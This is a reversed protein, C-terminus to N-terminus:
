QMLYFKELFVLKHGILSQQFIYLVCTSYAIRSIAIRHAVLPFRKNLVIQYGEQSSKYWFLINAGIELFIYVIIRRKFM